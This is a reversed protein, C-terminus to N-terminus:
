LRGLVEALGARWDREVDGDLLQLLRQNDLVSYAPRAAPTPYERSPTAKLVPGETLLGREEAAQFVAQAFEFWSVQQDGCFHYCGWGNFGPQTMLTALQLVMAAIHGAYTPCGVQDAVIALQDRERGLKLMTKVFNNGYESFVWATRVIVHKELQDRLAQEGALKSHGYVGLPRTSHDERYPSRAQGDFVYDTSLHLLPIDMEACVRALNEPGVANVARAREPEQEARDVATYAAANIVVQPQIGALTAQLAEVDTIDLEARGFSYLQHSGARDAICRGVQGQAGTLLIKM